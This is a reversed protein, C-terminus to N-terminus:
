KRDELVAYVLELPQVEGGFPADARQGAHVRGGFAVDFRAEGRTLEDGLADICAEARFLRLAIHPHFELRWGEGQRGVFNCSVPERQLARSAPM